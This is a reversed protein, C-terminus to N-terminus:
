GCAGIEAAARDLSRRIIVGAVHRRYAASGHLDSPPDLDRQRARAADAFCSIGPDAGVLVEEAARVRLPVDAVGTM